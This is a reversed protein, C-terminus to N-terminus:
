TLLFFSPMHILSNQHFLYIYFLPEVPPSLFLLNASYSYFPFFPHPLSITVSVLRACAPFALNPCTDLRSEFRLSNCFTSGFCRAFTLITPSIYTEESYKCGM